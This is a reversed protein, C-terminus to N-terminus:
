FPRFCHFGLRDFLYYNIILNILM